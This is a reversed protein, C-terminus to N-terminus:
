QLRPDEAVTRVAADLDESGTFAAVAAVAEPRLTDHIGAVPLPAARGLLQLMRSYAVSPAVRPMVVLFDRSDWRYVRDHARVSSDLVGAFHKLLTDGVAEGHQTVAAELNTLRLRVVSGFSARSFDLGVAADYARRNLLATPEDYFESLRGRDQLLEIQSETDISTRAADELLLRVMAYALALQLLLDAYFGYREFRVFWPEASLGANLRASLYFMVLGAWLMALAALALSALRSGVTRRSPPLGSLCAAAYAYAAVALPGHALGLAALRGNFTDVSFALVLGVPVAAQVLRRSTAGSSLLRVGSILLALSLLKFALYTSAFLWPAFPGSAYLASARDTLRQFLVAGLLAVALTVWSAEWSKFYSRRDATGRLLTFLAVLVTVGLLEAFPGLAAIVMNPSAPNM